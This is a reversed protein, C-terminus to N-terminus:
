LIFIFIMFFINIKSEILEFKVCRKEKFKYIKLKYNCYCSVLVMLLDFFWSFNGVMGCGVLVILFCRMKINLIWCCIGVYVGNVFYYICICINIYVIFWIVLEYLGVEFVVRKVVMVCRLGFFVFDGFIIFYILCLKLMIYYFSFFRVKLFYWDYKKM